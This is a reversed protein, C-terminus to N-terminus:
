APRHRGADFGSDLLAPVLPTRFPQPQRPGAGPRHGAVARDEPLVRRLGSRVPRYRHDPIRIGALRSWGSALAGATGRRSRGPWRGGLGPFGRHGLRHPSLAHVAHALSGHGRRRRRRRADPCQGVGSRGRGGGNGACGARCLRSDVEFRGSWNRYGYRRPAPPLRASPGIITRLADYHPTCERVCRVM